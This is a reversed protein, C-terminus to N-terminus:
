AAPEIHFIQDLGSYSFVDRVHRNLGRLVLSGGTPKLRKQVQLLVSLGASSIYDLATCDVTVTGSMANLLSQAKDAQASDLRGILRVRDPAAVEVKLM